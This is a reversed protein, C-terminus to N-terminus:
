EDQTKENGEEGKQTDKIGGHTLEAWGYQAMYEGRYLNVAQPKEDLWDYYDCDVRERVIGIKGKQRMLINECGAAAFTDRLDKILTRFYSDPSEDGWLVAMIEGNTCFAGNRDVLYALVEKTLKYKFKIPQEDIFVEFNGFTQFRVRKKYAPQIAFRLYDLEKRIKESTVPKLVYGSAHMEFADKMYDSYGTTFIINTDPHILKIEKALEVGNMNRMQIDLLVVECFTTKCFELADKPKRFCYIAAAPEAKKTALVLGELALEEDDLALINM